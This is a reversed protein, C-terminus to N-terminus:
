SRLGPLLTFRFPRIALTHPRSSIVSWSGCSTAVSDPPWRFRTETATSISLSGFSRSSSSGM